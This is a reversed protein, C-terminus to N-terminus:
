RGIALMLATQCIINKENVLIDPHTLLLKVVESHGLHCAKVLPTVEENNKKNVLIDPHTLLLEIAEPYDQGSAWMLATLEGDTENVLIDPHALLSKIIDLEKDYVAQLLLPGADENWTDKTNIDYTKELLEAYRRTDENKSARCLKIIEDTKKRNVIVREKDERMKGITGDVLGKIEQVQTAM